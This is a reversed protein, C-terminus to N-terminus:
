AKQQRLWDYWAAMGDGSRASVQLIAADPQITHIADLARPLDYDLYPLLDIKTLLVLDASRFIHPYKLPKNEGETVSMLVIRKHEGLDFLSPCVLNGVNEIFLLTKDQLPLQPLAAWIMEAELHCGKGTNVQIAPTGTARIAEADLSTAQDGEIVACPAGIERLTRELLCTKGAGPSSMLNLAFVGRGAFFGRNREAIRDNKDLM